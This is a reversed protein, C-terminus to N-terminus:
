QETIHPTSSFSEGCALLLFVRTEVDVVGRFKAVIASAELIKCCAPNSIAVEQWPGGAKGSRGVDAM